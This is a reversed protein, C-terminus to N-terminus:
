SVFGRRLRSANVVRAEVARSFTRLDEDLLEGKVSCGVVACVKQARTVGDVTATKLVGDALWVEAVAQNPGLDARDAVKFGRGKCIGWKGAPELACATLITAALAVFAYRM